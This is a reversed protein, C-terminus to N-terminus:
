FSYAISGTFSRLPQPLINTDWWKQNGLNDGKVSIRFQRYQYYVSASMLTYDPVTYTNQNNGFSKGAYNGGFALGLGNEFQYSLWLNAVSKPSTVPVKGELNAAVKLYKASLYGYGAIINLGKFPNAKIDLEVGTNRQSGDQVQLGSADDLRIKDDVLINYYSLSGSLKHGFADAKVGAEFQNAHEPKFISITGDPQTIPGNNAFANSYSAFLSVSEKVPQYVLGFKPSFATQDYVNDRNTIGNSISAGNHFRDMRLSAMVMFQDSLNLIDSFYAALANQTGSSTNLPLGGIMEDFKAKSVPSVAKSPLLITDYTVQSYNGFGSKYFYYDIGAVIRNRLRVIQFDGVFNQQVDTSNFTTRETKSIGRTVATDGLWNYWLSYEPQWTNQMTSLSTVSKWHPSLSYEMKVYNNLTKINSELANSGLSQKYGIPLDRIDKLGSPYNGLYYGTIWKSDYLEMNFTVNLRDSVRFLFSPDITINHHYGYDQFGNENHLAGNFRFLITKEKNLPTNYDLTLRNLENSGYFFSVEGGTSDFPRKSVRNVLGGYSATSGFLTGTPGKIAEVKEINVPDSGAYQISPLGDRFGGTSYFGRMKVYTGGNGDNVTTVMAGPINNLAQRYDTTVQEKMLAATVVNYVQPNELDKLPMKAVTESGQSIFKNPSARVTVDALEKATLNIVFDVMITADSVLQIQKEITNIGLSSIELHYAGAPVNQLRYIGHSNTITGAKNERIRVTVDTAPKGDATVVKGTVTGGSSQFAYLPSLCVLLLFALLSNSKLSMIHNQACLHRM